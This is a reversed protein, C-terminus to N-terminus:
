SVLFDDVLQDAKNTMRLVTLQMDKCDHNRALQRSSVSHM